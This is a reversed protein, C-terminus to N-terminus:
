VVQAGKRELLQLLDIMHTHTFGAKDMDAIFRDMMSHLAEGDSVLEEAKAVVRDLLSDRQDKTRLGALVETYETALYSRFEKMGKKLDFIVAASKERVEVMRSRNQQLQAVSEIIEKPSFQKRGYITRILLSQHLSLAIKRDGELDLASSSAKVIRKFQAYREDEKVKNIFQKTISM